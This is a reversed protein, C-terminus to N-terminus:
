KAAKIGAVIVFYKKSCYYSPSTEEQWSTTSGYTDRKGDPRRKYRMEREQYFGVSEFKFGARKLDKEVEKVRKKHTNLTADKWWTLFRRRNCGALINTDNFDWGTIKSIEKRAQAPTM